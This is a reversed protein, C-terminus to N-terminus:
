LFFLFDGEHRLPNKASTREVNQFRSLNHLQELGTCELAASRASVKQHQNAM